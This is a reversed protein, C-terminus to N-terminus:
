ATSVNSLRAWTCVGFTCRSRATPGSRQSLNSSTTRTRSIRHAMSVDRRHRPPRRSSEAVRVFVEYPIKNFRISEVGPPHLVQGAAGARTYVGCDRGCTEPNEGVLAFHWILQDVRDEYQRSLAWQVLREHWRLVADTSNAIFFGYNAVQGHRHRSVLMDTPESCKNFIRSALPDRLWFVDM